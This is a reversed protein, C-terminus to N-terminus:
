KVAVKEARAEADCVVSVVYVGSADPCRLTVEDSASTAQAVVRGACDSVLVRKERGKAGCGTVRLQGHRVSVKLKGDPSVARSVQAADKGSLRFVRTAHPRVLASFSGKVDSLTKQAWIDRCTYAKETELAPIDAFNFTATRSVSGLNTASLAVDGNELDKAFIVFGGDESVLDAQQGMPDQNLAILERNLLMRMDDEYDANDSFTRPDFTLLMPSSWMCWLALQTGYEDQTMGPGTLCLDNSSKGTGHLGLCLMDADNFRNVGQWASLNKMVNISQTVGVGSGSGIWCDRVDQSVRWCCGGAEAGWKWPERVGWECVYLRIDRGSARLAEGWKTYRARCTEVDDPAFCYDTKVLDVGWGAYAEADTKEYGYTGFASACTKEAVNTYLSFQMGKDHLYDGVARLGNPFRAANPVPKGDAARKDAHWWDDLGITNWGADYLGSELFFDAVQRVIKESIDSQVANWSQWGMFPTPQALKDSVTFTVVNDTVDGNEEVKITYRYVGARAVKGEVTQRAANWSLGDPLGEVAVKAAPDVTRVKHMFRVGPQSFVTTACALGGELAEESVIAPRTSNQDQFVLYANAWDVHDCGNGGTGNENELILYKWGNVDVNLEPTRADFATITGEAVVQTEGDQGRLSVRYLCTGQTRDGSAESRVEDDIGVRTYFRTVSGNLKVIIKGPAHTGVGSAYVTDRLTIPNGEISKDAKITGWGCAAKGIELSSLPVNETGAEAAPISVVPLASAPAHGQASGAISMLSLAAAFIATLVRHRTKKM